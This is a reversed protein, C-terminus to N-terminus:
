VEKILFSGISKYGTGEYLRNAPMNNDIGSFAGVLVGIATKELAWQEFQKLLRYAGLGGRYKKRTVNFVDSAVPEHSWIYYYLTGWLLSKIEGDKNVDIWVFQNEDRLALALHAIVKEVSLTMFAFTTGDQEEEYERFFKVADILDLEQMERISM